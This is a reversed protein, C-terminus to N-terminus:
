IRSSVFVTSLEADELNNAIGAGLITLPCPRCSAFKDKREM